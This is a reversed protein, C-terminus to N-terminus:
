CSMEVKSFGSMIVKGRCILMILPWFSGATTYYRNLCLLSTFLRNFSDDQPTGIQDPRRLPRRLQNFGCSGLNGSKQPGISGM